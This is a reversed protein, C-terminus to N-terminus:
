FQQGPKTPVPHPRFIEEDNMIIIVQDKKRIRFIEPPIRDGDAMDTHYGAWIPDDSLSNDTRSIFFRSVEIDRSARNPNGFGSKDTRGSCRSVLINAWSAQNPNGFGFGDQRGSKDIRGSANHLMVSSKTVSIFM